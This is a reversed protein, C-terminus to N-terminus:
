QSDNLIRALIRKSDLPMSDFVTNPNEVIEGALDNGFKAKIEHIKQSDRVGQKLVDETLRDAGQEWSWEATKDMGYTSAWPDVIYDDWYHQLGHDTDFKNLEECFTSPTASAYKDLMGKLVDREPSDSQWFQMRTSVAARVENEPAFSSGAYKRLTSTVSIGLQDARAAVKTCYEKRESPHLTKGNEEFWRNAELVDGYSDLPFQGQGYKHLAYNSHAKKVFTPTPEKGTVDVYLEATKSANLQSDADDAKNPNSQLPMVTSGILDGKKEKLKPVQNAVKELQSPPKIGFALCYGFLNAAAVKQAEEPLRDKTELFYMTSLATNGKDVCAFKRMAKGNDVMILAFADDPLSALKEETQYNASRVYDPLQAHAVKTKLISGSPDDYFDIITGIRM